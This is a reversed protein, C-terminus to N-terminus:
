HLLERKKNEYEEASIAGMEKLGFWYKLDKEQESNVIGNNKYAMMELETEINKYISLGNKKRWNRISYEWLIFPSAPLLFMISLGIMSDVTSSGSNGHAGKFATLLIIIWILLTPAYFSLYIFLRTILGGAKIGNGANKYM